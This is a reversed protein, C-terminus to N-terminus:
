KWEPIKYGLEAFVRGEHERSGWIEDSEVDEHGDIIRHLCEKGDKRSIFSIEPLFQVEEEFKFELPAKIKLEENFLTQNASAWAVRKDFYEFAKARAECLDMDVFDKSHTYYNDSNNDGVQYEMRYYFEYGTYKGNNIKM